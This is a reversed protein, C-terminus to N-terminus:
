PRRSDVIGLLHTALMVQEWAERPDSLKVFRHSHPNKYSLIAGAFLHMLGEREAPPDSNRTLPGKDSQFAKRMLDVGLDSASFKGADRVAVEVAIFSTRVAEDLDGRMIASWAKDAISPHLLAKSFSKAVRIREFADASKCAEEGARTLSMWGNRGNMGPSPGILAERELSQWAEHVHAEVQTKKHFPYANDPEGTVGAENLISDPWFGAPQLRARALRLLVPALDEPSIALLAEATPFLSRLTEVSAIRQEAFLIHWSTADGDHRASSASAAGIAAIRQM